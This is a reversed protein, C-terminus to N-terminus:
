GRPRRNTLRLVDQSAAALEALSHVDRESEWRPALAKLLHATTLADSLARHAQGVPLRLRAALAGLSNGGSEYLSRALGLTDLVAQGLPPQGAKAMLAALFPLDFAAHHFVLVRGACRAQLAGAVGAPGPADRVMADTIGHIATADPPIPRGPHVLTSWTEGIEEGELSVCAVEILEHGQAPDFGTTETDLVALRGGDLLSV